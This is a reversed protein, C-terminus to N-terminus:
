ESVFNPDKRSASILQHLTIDCGLANESGEHHQTVFLQTAFKREASAPFKTSNEPDFPSGESGAEM